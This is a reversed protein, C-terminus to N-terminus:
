SPLFHSSGPKEATHHALPLECSLCDGGPKTQRDELAARGQASCSSIEAKGARDANEV